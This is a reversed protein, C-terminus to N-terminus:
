FFNIGILNKRRLLFLATCLNADLPIEEEIMQNLMQLSELRVQIIEATELLPKAIKHAGLACFYLIKQGSIGVYPYASGLYHMENAHYGTEELLERFASKEPDEETDVYGGPCGLIVQGAPHRYEETLLLLGDETIPLVVVSRPFTDLSFYEYTEEGELRLIDKKITLLRNKYVVESNELCPITFNKDPM